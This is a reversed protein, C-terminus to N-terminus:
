SHAVVSVTRQGARESAAGLIRVHVRFSQYGMATHAKHVNESVAIGLSLCCMVSTPLLAIPLFKAESSLSEDYM